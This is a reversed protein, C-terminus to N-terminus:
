KGGGISVLEGTLLLAVLSGGWFGLLHYCVIVGFVWLVFLAGRWILTPLIAALERGIELIDRGKQPTYNIFFVVLALLLLGIFTEM